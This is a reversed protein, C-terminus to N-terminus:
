RSQRRILEQAVFAAVDEAFSGPGFGADFGLETALEHTMRPGGVIALIRGRVGEAEMIEVLHTLTTIHLDKQTVVVSALVADAGEEIARAVLTEPPVQAGMNIARIQRYRELGYHGAFGKMNMIADIGVTHADSGPCAGVVVLERGLVREILDDIEHMDLHEFEAKPVHITAYDVGVTATGYLVFFTTSPGMEEMAVLLPDKLGLQLLMRRAAEAAEPGAPVPLAFSCQVKGDDLTDGYPLVNTLDPQKVLSM